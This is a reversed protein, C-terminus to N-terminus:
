HCLDVIMQKYIEVASELESIPISEGITHAVNIDGPGLVVLKMLSQFHFGDTGYPVTEPTAIGTARCASKVLPTDTDTYVPHDMESIVDLGHAEARAIIDAVIEEYRANPMARLTVYCTATDATMNTAGNDEFIINFGNTPPTFEPNMYSTDEQFMAGLAAVEAIFPALKISASDGQGSSTHAAKGRATAQVVAYGKHAYVPILQTPEAVVGYDPQAERLLQSTAVVHKAGYLGTEEDSTVVIYIPKKLDDSAVDGTAIMTAALPGKMDCSGRGLLRGDQVVPDYAGWSEEMGPVTDSHSLFALGGTGKGKKAVLNCKRENDEIYELREIEDFGNARLWREIYDTVDANSWRSVSPIKVLEQTLQVVDHTM